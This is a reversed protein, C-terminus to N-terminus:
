GTVAKLVASGSRFEFGNKHINIATKSRSSYFMLNASAQLADRSAAELAMKTAQATVEVPSPQLAKRLLPEDALLRELEAASRSLSQVDRRTAALSPRARDKTELPKPLQLDPHQLKAVAWNNARLRDMVEAVEAIMQELTEWREADQAASLLIQRASCILEREENTLPSPM